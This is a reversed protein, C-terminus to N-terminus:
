LQGATPSFPRELTETEESISIILSPPHEEQARGFGVLSCEPYIDIANTVSRTVRSASLKNVTSSM